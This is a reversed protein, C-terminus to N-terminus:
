VATQMEVGQPLGASLIITLLSGELGNPALVNRQEFRIYGGEFDYISIETDDNEYADETTLFVKNEPGLSLCGLLYAELEVPLLDGLDINKITVDTPTLVDVTWMGPGGSLDTYLPAGQGDTLVGKFDYDVSDIEEGVRFADVLSLVTMAIDNDAHFNEKEVTKQSQDESKDKQPSCSVVAITIVAILLFPRFTFLGTNIFTRM